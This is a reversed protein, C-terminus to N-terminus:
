TRASSRQRRHRGGRLERRPRPLALGRPALRSGVPDALVIKAGSAHTRLYRGVGTITGGTGVGCVFAGVQAGAQAVIEPGTTQEQIHPNAPNAFQETLFWGREAALREAVRRFNRPDSIQANATVIVEAGILGANHRACGGDVVPLM